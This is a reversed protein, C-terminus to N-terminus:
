IAVLTRMKELMKPGIGKVNTLEELSSFDGNLERYQVIANAKKAGVGPLASLQQASAKNINIKSLANNKESNTTEESSINVLKVEEVKTKNSMANVSYHGMSALLVAFIGIWKSLKM